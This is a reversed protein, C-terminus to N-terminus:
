MTLYGDREKLMGSQIMSDLLRMVESELMGSAVAEVLVVERQVRGFKDPTIGQIIEMLQLSNDMQVESALRSAINKQIDMLNTFEVM